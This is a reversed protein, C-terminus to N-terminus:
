PAAPGTRGGPARGSPRHVALWGAELLLFAVLAFVFALVLDRTAAGAVRGLAWVAGLGGLRAAIGGTWVTWVNEGRALGGALLWFSVAQILWAAGVGVGVAAADLGGARAALWGVLSLLLTVSVYAARRLGPVDGSRATKESM